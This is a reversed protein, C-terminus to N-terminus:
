PTTRLMGDHEGKPETAAEPGAAEPLPQVVVGPQGLRECLCALGSLALWAAAIGAAGNALWPSLPAAVWLSLCHFCDFMRSWPGRGLAARARAVLDFPGDEYALLHTLRWAALAALALRPWFDTAIVADM